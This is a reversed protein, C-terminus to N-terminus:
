KKKKELKVSLGNSISYIFKTIPLVPANEFATFLSFRFTIVRSLKFELHTDTSVRHRAIQAANDYGVQYYAIVNFHVYPQLEVRTSLYNSSKLYDTTITMGEETNQWREQEFMTAIGLFLHVKKNDLMRIRFGAGGLIRHDLGRLQDYQGQGFIEYAIPNHSNIIFRLHSYGTSNFSQSNINLYSYRNLGILTNKKSFYAVDLNSNIALLNIPQHSTKPLLEILPELVQM